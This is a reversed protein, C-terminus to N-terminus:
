VGAILWPQSSVMPTGAVEPRGGPINALICRPQSELQQCMQICQFLLPMRILHRSKEMSKWHFSDKKELCWRKNINELYNESVYAVYIHYGNSYLYM